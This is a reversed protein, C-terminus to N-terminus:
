SQRYGSGPLPGEFNDLPGEFNDPAKVPTDAFVPPKCFNMGPFPNPRDEVVVPKPIIGKAVLNARTDYYIVAQGVSKSTDREFSTTSVKSSIEEGYGTGLDFGRSGGGKAGFSDGGLTEIGRSIGKTYMLDRPRYIPEPVKEQFVLFGIVGCNTIGHGTGASYSREKEGFKFANVHDLSGRWGDITMSGRAPIVYGRSSETPTEGDMVSLGDVTALVEIRRSTHNQVRLSYDNGPRGEVFTGSPSTFEDIARSNVFVSVSVLGLSDRM